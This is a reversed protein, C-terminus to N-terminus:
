QVPTTLAQEVTWGSFDLRQRITTSNIGTRESWEVVSMTENGLTLYRNHRTNRCQQKPTAWQCNDPEYNGNNDKRDLQLRPQPIEGMDALFNEFSNRWRDCVQIGRGGWDEFQKARPDYCRQKMRLWCRYEPTGTLGHTIQRGRQPSCGCHKVEGNVLYVSRVFLENGCDCRCKWFVSKNQGFQRSEWEDLVTLQGFHHGSRNIFNAM